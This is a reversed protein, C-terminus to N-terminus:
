RIESIQLDLQTLKVDKKRALFKHINNKEDTAEQKIM